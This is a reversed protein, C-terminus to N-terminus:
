RLQPSNILRARQQVLNVNKIEHELQLKGQEWKAQERFIVCSYMYIAKNSDWKIM